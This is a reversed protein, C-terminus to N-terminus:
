VDLLRYEPNKWFLALGPLACVKSCPWAAPGRRGESGRGLSSEATTRGAPSLFPSLRTRGSPQRWGWSSLAASPRAGAGGSGLGRVKVATELQALAAEYRPVLPQLLKSPVDHRELEPTGAEALMQLFRRKQLSAALHSPAGQGVGGGM